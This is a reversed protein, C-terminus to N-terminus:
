GVRFSPLGCPICVEQDVTGAGRLQVIEEVTMEHHIDEAVAGRFARSEVEEAM